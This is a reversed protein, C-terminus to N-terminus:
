LKIELSCNGHYPPAFLLTLFSSLAIETEPKWRFSQWPSYARLPLPQGAWKQVMTPWQVMLCPIQWCRKFSHWYYQFQIECVGKTNTFYITETVEMKPGLCVGGPWWWLKFGLCLPSALGPVKYVHLWRVNAGDQQTQQEMGSCSSHLFYSPCWTGAGTPVRHQRGTHERLEARLVEQEGGRCLVPSM